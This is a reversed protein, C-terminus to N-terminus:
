RGGSVTVLGVEPVKSLIESCGVCNVGAAADYRDDFHMEEKLTSCLLIQGM